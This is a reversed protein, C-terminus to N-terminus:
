LNWKIGLTPMLEWKDSMPVFNKSIETQGGINFNGYFNYWLQPKSLFVFKKKNGDVALNDETWLDIFGNFLLKKAFPKFWTLTLQFDAGNKVNQIYKYSLTTGLTFGDCVKLDYNAGILYMNRFTVGFNDAGYHGGNYEIHALVPIKDSIKLNRLFEVYTLSIGGQTSNFSFDVFFFTSGMKDPKFYELTSTFYGRDEAKKDNAKGMDYHLQLNQATCGLSLILVFLLLAKKM